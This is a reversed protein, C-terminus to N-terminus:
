WGRLKPKLSLFMRRKKFLFTFFKSTEHQVLGWGSIAMEGHMKTRTRSVEQSGPPAVQIKTVM